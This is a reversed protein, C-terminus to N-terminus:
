NSSPEANSDCQLLSTIGTTVLIFCFNCDKLRPQRCSSPRRVNESLGAEQVQVENPTGTIILDPYPGQRPRYVWYMGM